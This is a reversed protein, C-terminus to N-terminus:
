RSGRSPRAPHPGRHISADSQIVEGVELVQKLRRLDNDVEQEPLKHGVKAAARGLVGGPLRVQITVHVETGRGGPARVFRVEGSNTVDANRSTRWAILESPRDQTIEADWELTKGAVDVRWRSRLQDVVQVSEVNSMFRSLNQFDRWFSYVEDPPRNITITSCIEVPKRTTGRVGQASGGRSIQRSTLFDVATVGAVALLAVSVRDRRASGRPAPEGLAMALLGLDMVDGLVRAWLWPAQSRSRLIGVGAMLERVGLARMTLSQTGDSSVGIARALARPALLQTVGLGVSFWGLGRARRAAGDLPRSRRPSAMGTEGEFSRTSITGRGGPTRSTTGVEPTHMGDM